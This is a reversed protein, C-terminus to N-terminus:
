KVAKKKMEYLKGRIHRLAKDNIVNMRLLNHIHRNGIYGYENM